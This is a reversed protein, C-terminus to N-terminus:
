AAIPAGEARKMIPTNNFMVAGVHVSVKAIIDACKGNQSLQALIIFNYSPLAATNSGGRERVHSHREITIPM